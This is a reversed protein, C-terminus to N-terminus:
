RFRIPTHKEMTEGRRLYLKEVGPVSICVIWDIGLGKLHTVICDLIQAAIGHGRFETLVVMDLLYADSVGDSLSRMMGIMRGRHFAGVVCFSNKLVEPIFDTSDEEGIWGADRYLAAADAAYADPMENGKIWKGLFAPLSFTKRNVLQRRILEAILFLLGVALLLLLLILLFYRM